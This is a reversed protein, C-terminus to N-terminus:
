YNLLRGLFERFKNRRIRGIVLCSLYKVIYKKISKSAYRQTDCNSLATKYDAFEKDWMKLDKDSYKLGNEDFFRKMYETMGIIQPVFSWHDTKIAEVSGSIFVSNLHKMTNILYQTDANDLLVTNRKIQIVTGGPKMFLALHLATGACGALVKCNKVLSIQKLLPLTEPYIIKFGNQEFIKQITYEGYTHRDMPMKCRSLYIKDYFDVDETNDAIKDFMIRVADTYYATIDFGQMPVYVNKFQTTKDLLIINEKKIGLAGLLIYIYDNIKGCNIEDVIVLKMNKYKKDLLCWSRNIYEVLFHGFNNKGCHCLFVADEDVYPINDRSFRPIFQGKRGKHNQISAGVFRYKEDFVGYGNEHENVVIGNSVCQIKPEAEKYHRKVTKLLYKQYKDDSYIKLM